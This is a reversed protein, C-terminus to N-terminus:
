VAGSGIPVKHVMSEKQIQQCSKEVLDLLKSINRAWGDLVQESKQRGQFRVLGAPRDIKAAVKNEVVLDALHSEAQQPTLDLLEAFRAMQLRSYYKAIVVINRETVRLKLDATRAEGHPGKFLDQAALENAFTSEFTRYWLIQTSPSSSIGGLISKWRYM